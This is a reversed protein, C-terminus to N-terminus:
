KIKTVKNLTDILTKDTKYKQTLHKNISAIEPNNDLFEFLNDINYNINKNGFYKEIQKFLDLDEQYDLTLRYDRIWKEPLDVINIKFHEPNNRFYWTMYESYNASPFHKKVKRLANANIIEMNTGVAAERGNTYDAGTEFHKELLFDSVDASIYPCDGTVRFFVDIKLRDIIDLYRQVVDDPHGKHFIVSESYTYDKLIDDEPLDSTALVVCNTNRFKMTNKICTEISSYEGINIIAKKPLRTSKMRCAIIVAINAKKLDQQMITTNKKIKNSAIYFEGNYKEIQSTKLGIQNTRKFDLDKLSIIDGIKKENKLIPIQNSKELYDKERNNIFPQDKLLSYRQQIQIMNKYNSSTLSSFHDYETKLSGHMIHKEIVDAGSLIALTPLIQADIDKGNIHDAFVIKNPFHKKIIGIKNLGSDKLETPYSQFGVELLIESFGLSGFKDLYYEIEKIERGAINLILNLKKCDLLSLGEFVHLNELISTQLKIGAISKINQEIISIGYSDFLDIWIDKTEYAKSIIKDWEEEIFFLKQYVPYWEYDKSAINDYRFPQFKIGFGDKKNFEEFENLLSFVYNINGGHTNAVELINYM